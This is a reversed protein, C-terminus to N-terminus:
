YSNTMEALIQAPSKRVKWNLKKFAKTPNGCISVTERSSQISHIDKKKIKINLLTAAELIISEISKLEGSSIVFDEPVNHELAQFIAECVESADCMDIKQFANQIIIKERKYSKFESLQNALSNFLYSPKSIASTHNFLILGVAFLNSEERYKKLLNFGELKTRGYLNQPEYFDNENIKHLSPSPTYMQSSLALALKSERNKKVWELLNRTVTVHCSYMEDSRSKETTEMEVSSGHVAALHFIRNPKIIDLYEKCLSSDSLDMEIDGGNQSNLLSFQNRWGFTMSVKPRAVGFVDFGNENLINKLFTGDQGKIGTILARM